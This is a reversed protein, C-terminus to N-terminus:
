RVPGRSPSRTHTNVLQSGLLNNASLARRIHEANDRNDKVAVAFARVAEKLRPLQSQSIVRMEAPATAAEGLYFSPHVLAAIPRCTTDYQSRFWTLAGSVEDTYGKSIKDATAGNKCPLLLYQLGGLAWLVDLKGSGQREPRQSRFGLLMGIENLAEEFEESTEPKFILDALIGNTGIVVANGDSYKHQLYLAAQRAQDMSTTNLRVYTM